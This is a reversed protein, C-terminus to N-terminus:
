AEGTGGTTESTEELSKWTRRVGIYYITNPAKGYKAGLRKKISYAGEGSAVAEDYERRITRVEDPTLKAWHSDAGHIV